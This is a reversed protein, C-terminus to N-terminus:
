KKNSIKHPQLSEKSIRMLRLAENIDDISVVDSLRLRAKATALRIAGLLIRPSTFLSNKQNLSQKRIKVYEDVLKQKLLEPIIPQKRKCIAFYKRFNLILM